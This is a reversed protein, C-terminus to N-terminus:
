GWEKGVVEDMISKKKRTVSRAGDSMHGKIVMKRWDSRRFINEAGSIEVRPNQGIAASCTM